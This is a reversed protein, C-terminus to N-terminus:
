GFVAEYRMGVADPGIPVLFLDFAGLRDHELRYIRQPLPVGPPGRFVVSFPRRATGPPPAATATAPGGGLDTAEVLALELTEEPGLRLRFTEGLHSAFTQRTFAELM